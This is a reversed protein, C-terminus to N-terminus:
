RPRDNPPHVGSIHRRRDRSDPLSGRGGALRGFVADLARDTRPRTEAAAPQRAPAGSSAGDGKFGNRRYAGGLLGGGKAAAPPRPPGPEVPAQSTPPAHFSASSEPAEAMPPQVVPEEYRPRRLSGRGSAGPSFAGEVGAPAPQIEPSASTEDSMPEVAIGADQNESTESNPGTRWVIVADTIERAGAFERYRLEPIQLWSFLHEVDDDHNM